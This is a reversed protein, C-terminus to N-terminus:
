GHHPGSREGRCLIEALIPEDISIKGTKAGTARPWDIVRGSLPYDTSMAWSPRSGRYAELELWAGSGRGWGARHGEIGRRYIACIWPRSSLGTQSSAHHPAHGPSRAKCGGHAQSQSGIMTSPWLRM